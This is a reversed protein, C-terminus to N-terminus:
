YTTSILFNRKFLIKPIVPAIKVSTIGKIKHSL